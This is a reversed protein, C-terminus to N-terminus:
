AASCCPGPDSSLFRSLELYVTLVPPPSAPIKQDPAMRQGFHLASM